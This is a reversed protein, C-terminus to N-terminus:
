IFERGDPVELLTDMGESIIEVKNENMTWQTECVTCTRIGEDMVVSRSKCKPCM